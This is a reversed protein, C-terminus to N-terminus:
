AKVYKEFRVELRHNHYIPLIKRCLDLNLRSANDFYKEGDLYILDLFAREKSAISYGKLHAVGIPNTLIDNSLRRFEYKKELIEVTRSQYSVSFIRDYHQFIIGESALVTELSVYSPVFIRNAIEFFNTEKGSVGYIGRRLATLVGSKVYYHIKAKLNNSDGEGWLLGLEAASFVTQDSLLISSTLNKM